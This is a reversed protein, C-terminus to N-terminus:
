KKIFPDLNIQLNLGLTNYNNFPRLIRNRLPDYVNMKRTDAVLFNFEQQRMYFMSVSLHRSIKSNLNIILRSRHFGDPTQRAVLQADKDYYRIPNGGINYFISYAVSPALNLFELRKRLGLRATFIIRQRFRNENKSNTEFRISNLLNIKKSLRSNYSVRTFIRKRTDSTDPSAILQLGAQVDWKKNIEYALQFQSQNFVNQYQQSLNYARTHSIKAGVKKTLAGSVIIGNWNLWESQANVYLSIFFLLTLLILKKICHSINNM